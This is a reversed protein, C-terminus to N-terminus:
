GEQAILGLGHTIFYSTLAAVVVPIVETPPVGTILLVIISLTLPIPLIAGPLAAMM